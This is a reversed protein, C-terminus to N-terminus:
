DLANLRAMSRHIPLTDISVAAYQAVVEGIELVDQQASNSDDVLLLEGSALVHDSHALSANEASGIGSGVDFGFVLGIIILLWGLGARVVFRWAISLTLDSTMFSGIGERGFPEFRM